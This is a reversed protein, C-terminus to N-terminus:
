PRTLPRLPQFRQIPHRNPPRPIYPPKRQTPFSFSSLHQPPSHPERSHYCFLTLATPSTQRPSNEGHDEDVRSTSQLVDRGYCQEESDRFLSTLGRSRHESPLTWPCINSPRHKPLGEILSSNQCSHYCSRSCIFPNNRSPMDDASSLQQACPVSSAQIM